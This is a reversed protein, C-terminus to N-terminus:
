AYTLGSRLREPTFELVDFAAKLNAIIQEPTLPLCGIFDAHSRGARYEPQRDPEKLYRRVPDSDFHYLLTGHHILARRGRRQANGSVKQGHLALDSGGAIALGPIRMSGVIRGLIADFSVAVDALWPSSVLSLAIAYNLCGPGVVVTGGGSFRRLIAVGDERCAGAIVHDAAPSNRGLIVVPRPSEWTLWLRDATGSEVAQFLAWERDLHLRAPNGSNDSDQPM